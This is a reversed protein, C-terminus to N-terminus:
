QPKERSAEALALTDIMVGVTQYATAIELVFEASIHQKTHTRKANPKFDDISMKEGEFSWVPHVLDNRRGVADNAKDLAKLIQNEKREEETEVVVLSKIMDTRAKFNKTSYFLRAAYDLTIGALVSLLHVLSQDLLNARVMLVGLAQLIDARYEQGFYVVTENTPARGGLKRGAVPHLQAREPLTAQGALVEHLSTYLDMAVHTQLTTMFIAGALTSFSLVLRPGGPGQTVGSFMTATEFSITPHQRTQGSALQNLQEVLCGINFALGNGADPAAVYYNHSGESGVLGFYM